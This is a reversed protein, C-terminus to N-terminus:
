RCTAVIEFQTAGKNAYYIHATTSKAFRIKTTHDIKRFPNMRNRLYTERRRAM